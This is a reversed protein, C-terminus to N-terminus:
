GSIFSGLLQGLSGGPMIKFYQNNCRNSSEFTLLSFVKYTYLYIIGFTYFLTVRSKLNM